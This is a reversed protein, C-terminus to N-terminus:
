LKAEKSIYTILGQKPIRWVRGQKYAPIQHTALLRYFINASVKMLQMAETPTLVEDADEFMQYNQKVYYEKHEKQM